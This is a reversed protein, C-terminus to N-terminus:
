HAHNEADHQQDPRAISKLEEQRLQEVEPEIRNFAKICADELKGIAQYWEDTSLDKLFRDGLLKPDCLLGIRVFGEKAIAVPATNITNLHVLLAESSRDGNRKLIGIVEEIARIADRVEPYQKWM